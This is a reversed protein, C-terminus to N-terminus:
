SMIAAIVALDMIMSNVVNPNNQDYITPMTLVGDEDGDITFEGDVTSKGFSMHQSGGLPTGSANGLAGVGMVFNTQGPDETDMVLGHLGSEYVSDTNNPAILMRASLDVRVNNDLDVDELNNHSDGEQITEAITSMINADLTSFASTGDGSDNTSSRSRVQESASGRLTQQLQHTEPSQMNRRPSPADILTGAVSTSSTTTTAGQVDLLDMGVEVVGSIGSTDLRPPTSPNFGPSTTDQTPTAEQSTIPSFQNTTNTGFRPTRSGLELLLSANPDM